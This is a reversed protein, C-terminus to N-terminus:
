LWVKLIIKPHRSGSVIGTEGEGFMIVHQITRVRGEPEMVHTGIGVTLRFKLLKCLLKSKMKPVVRDHCLPMRRRFIM